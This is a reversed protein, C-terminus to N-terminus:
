RVSTPFSSPPARWRGGSPQTPCASWTCSWGVVIGQGLNVMAITVLYRSISTETEKMISVAKRKDSFQPLVRVLKRSFLDGTALVCEWPWRGPRLREATADPADWYGQMVHPGRVILEGVQDVAAVGGGEAQVWAETGPIAIGVSDPGTLAETCPSPM